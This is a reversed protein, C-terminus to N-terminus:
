EQYINESMLEYITYISTDLKVLPTHYWFSSLEQLLGRDKLSSYSLYVNFLVKNYKSHLPVTLVHSIFNLNM